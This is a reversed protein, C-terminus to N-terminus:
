LAWLRATILVPLYVHDTGAAWLSIKKARQRHVSNYRYVSCEIEATSTGSLPTEALVLLVRPFLHSFM